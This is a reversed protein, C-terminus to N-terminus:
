PLRTLVARKRNDRTKPSPTVSDLRNQYVCLHAYAAALLPTELDISRARALLDGIIQDAETPSGSQLDRYM